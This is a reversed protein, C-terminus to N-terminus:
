YLAVPKDFWNTLNKKEYHANGALNIGIFWLFAGPLKYGTIQFLNLKHNGTQKGDDTCDEISSYEIAPIATQLRLDALEM